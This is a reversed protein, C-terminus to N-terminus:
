LRAGDCILKIALTVLRDIPITRGGDVWSKYIRIQSSNVHTLYLAWEDESWGKPPTWDRFREEGMDDMVNQMIGAYAGSSLIIDYLPGQQASYVMFERVIQEIDEPYRLGSTRNVYPAALESQVQELLDDLTPYYRYFTTKNIMARECLAKVSIKEYPMEQLLSSFADHIAKLTKQVRIDEKGTIQM